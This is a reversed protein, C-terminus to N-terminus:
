LTRMYLGLSTSYGMSRHIIHNNADLVYYSPYASVKYAQKVQENGLTIPFNLQLDKAFSEVEGVDKYDLAVAVIDVNTKNKYISELNGISAKCISCWPAFFYVVTNKARSVKKDSEDSEGNLTLLPQALSYTDNKLTPLNFSPAADNNWSSLMSTERLSSVLNFIVVIIVVQVIFGKFM